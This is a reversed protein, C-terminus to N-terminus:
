QGPQSPYGDGRGNPDGESGNLAKFVLDLAHQPNRAAVQGIYSRVHAPLDEFCLIVAQPGEKTSVLTMGQTSLAGLAGSFTTKQM